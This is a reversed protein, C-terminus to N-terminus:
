IAIEYAGFNMEELTKRLIEVGEDIDAQTHVLSVYKGMGVVYTGSPGMMFLGNNLARMKLEDRGEDSYKPKASKFDTVKEDTFVLKNIPGLGIAQMKLGLAAFMRNFSSRFAEGLAFLREYQGEQELVELTALGAVNGIPYGYWTSSAFVASDGEYTPSLPELFERKGAVGGIPFGGGIIKGLATLHPTVGFLGQGSGLGLRFGSVVEDFILLSGHRDCLSRLKALYGPAPPIIGRLVPETIIGAINAGQESFAREIAPEDNFPVVLTQATMEAPVGPSKGGVSKGRYMGPLFSDYAGHFAGDFKLLLDRGTVARALKVAFTCASTGTPFLRVVEASPLYRHIKECLTVEEPSPFGILQTAREFHRNVQEVVHPHRHGLILPGSGMYFDVYRNGDVDIIRSGEGRDMYVPHPYLYRGAHQVGQTTFAKAGNYIAASKPHLQEFRQRVEESLKKAM